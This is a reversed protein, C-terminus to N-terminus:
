REECGPASAAENADTIKVLVKTIRQGDVTLVTVVLNNWSFSDGERPMHEFNELVWAGLTKHAFADREYDDYQMRDFADWVLMDSRIEFRHGGIKAFEEVVEDDEDWIEGVLEELIDEMTVIGMTGGYDDTVVSMHIKERSMERLLDDIGTTKPTFHAPDILPKLEVGDPQRAYEKLFRRANLVGVINDITGRYVPMRSYKEDKIIQLVEDVPTDDEIAVVDVRATLVDQVSIDAFELASRVLESKNAAMGGQEEINEIIEYLEDETVTPEKQSSFLHATFSGIGGFVVTLPYLVRMFFRLSGATALAFADSHTKAINKPFMESFFFIVVVIAITSYPVAGVGWLKTAILTSLSACGIHMVNTGVLLTSLARDFNNTIHLAMKARSDGNDAYSKLRMKNASAFAVECASFYGGAFVM